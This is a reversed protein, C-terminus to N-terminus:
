LADSNTFSEVERWEPMMLPGDLHDMLVKWMRCTLWIHAPAVGGPAVRDALPEPSDELDGGLGIAGEQPQGICLTPVAVEACYAVLRSLETAPAVMASYPAPRQVLVAASWEDPTNDGVKRWAFPVGLEVEEFAAPRLPDRPDVARRRALGLRITRHKDDNSYAQLLRLPNADEPVNGTQLAVLPTVSAITRQEAFPQIAEIRRALKTGAGVCAVGKKVNDKQWRAFKAPTDYIPLALTTQATQPVGGCEQEVLHWIVNDLAARAHNVGESFLLAALPPPPREGEVFAQYDDGKREEVIRYPADKSWRAVTEGLEYALCDARVLRLAAPALAAPLLCPTSPEDSM